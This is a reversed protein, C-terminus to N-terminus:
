RSSTLVANEETFWIVIEDSRSMGLTERAKRDLIRPDERLGRVLTRYRENEQRLAENARALEDFESRLREIELDVPHEQLFRPVWLALGVVALVLLIRLLKEM